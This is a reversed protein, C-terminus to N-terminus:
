VRQPRNEWQEWMKNQEMVVPPLPTIPCLDLRSKAAALPVAKPPQARSPQDPPVWPVVELEQRALREWDISEFFAHKKASDWGEPLREEPVTMVFQTLFEKSVADLNEKAAESEDFTPGASQAISQCVQASTASCTPNFPTHGCFMEYVLIGYSWYDVAFTHGQGHIMEPAMYEPSGCLTFTKARSRLVKAMGFDALKLYGRWDILLNEPKIDRFVVHLQRIYSLALLLMASYMVCHSAPLFGGLSKMRRYVDKGPCYELLMCLHAPNTFSTYLHVVYPHCLQWHIHKERVVLKMLKRKEIDQKRISKLAYYTKTTPHRVLRVSGYSGKGLMCITDLDEMRLNGRAEVVQAWDERTDQTNRLLHKYEGLHKEFEERHLMYVHVDSGAVMSRMGNQPEDLLASEGFYEGTGREGVEVGGSLCKVLGSSIIYFHSGCSGQPIIVQGKQFRHEKMAMIVPLLAVDDGINLAPVSKLTRMRHAAMLTPKVSALHLSFAASDIALTTCGEAGACVTANHPQDSLLSNEGFWQSEQLEGLLKDERTSAVHQSIVVSGERILFM